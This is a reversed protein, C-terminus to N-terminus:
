DAASVILTADTAGAGVGLVAVGGGPIFGILRASPSLVKQRGFSTNADRDTWLVTDSVCGLGGICGADDATMIEDEVPSWVYQGIGIRPLVKDAGGKVRHIHLAYGSELEAKRYSIYAGTSPSFAVDPAVNSAITRISAPGGSSWLRLREADVYALAVGDPSFRLGALDFGAGELLTGAETKASSRLNLAVLVEGGDDSVEARLVVRNGDPGLRAARVGDLPGAVSIPAGGDPLQVAQWAGDSVFSVMRGDDSLEVAFSERRSTSALVATEARAGLTVAALARVGGELLREVVLRTGGARVHLGLVDTLEFLLEGTRARFVAVKGMDDASASNAVVFRGNDAFALPSEGRAADTGLPISAAAPGDFVGARLFMRRDARRVYAVAGGDPSLVFSDVGDDVLRPSPDQDLYLSGTGARDAIFGSRGGNAADAFAFDRPAVDPALVRSRGGATGVRHLTSPLEGGGSWFAVSKGDPAIRASIVNSELARDVHLVGSAVACRGKVDTALATVTHSGPALRNLGIHGAFPAHDFHRVITGGIPTCRSVQGDVLIDISRIRGTSGAAIVLDTGARHYTPDRPSPSILWVTPLDSVTASGPSVCSEDPCSYSADGACGFLAGAFCVAAAVRCVGIEM